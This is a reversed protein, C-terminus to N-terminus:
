LEEDKKKAKYAGYGVCIAAIASIGFDFPVGPPPPAQALLDLPIFTAATALVAFFVLKKKKM